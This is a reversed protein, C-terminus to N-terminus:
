GGNEIRQTAPHRMEWEIHDNLKERIASIDREIRDIKESLHEGDRISPDLDRWKERWAALESVKEDLKLVLDYLRPTGSVHRHNVADSVENSVQRLARAEMKAMAAIVIAIAGAVTAVLLELTEKGL